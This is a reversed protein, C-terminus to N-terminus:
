LHRTFIRGRNPLRQFAVLQKMDEYDFGQEIMGRAHMISGYQNECSSLCLGQITERIQPSM